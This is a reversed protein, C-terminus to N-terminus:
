NLKPSRPRSAAHSNQFDFCFIRSHSSARRAWAMTHDPWRIYVTYLKPAFMTKFSKKQTRTHTRTHTHTHTNAHIGELNVCCRLLARIQPACVTICLKFRCQLMAKTAMSSGEKARHLFAFLTDVVVNSQCARTLRAAGVGRVDKMVECKLMTWAMGAVWSGAKAM